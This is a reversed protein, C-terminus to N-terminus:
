LILSYVGVPVGTTDFIVDTSSAGNTFTVFALESGVPQRLNIALENGIQEESYVHPVILTTKPTSLIEVFEVM